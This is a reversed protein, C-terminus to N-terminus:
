EHIRIRRVIPKLIMSQFVQFCITILIAIFFVVWINAVTFAPGLIWDTLKLVFVNLVFYFLGFSIGTLPLTVQFLVPKVTINLGYIILTALICYGFNRIQFSRFLWTMVKLIFAYAFLSMVLAILRKVRKQKVQEQIM